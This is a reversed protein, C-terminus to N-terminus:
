FEPGTIGPTDHENGDRLMHRGEMRIGGNEIVRAFIRYITYGGGGKFFLDHVSGMFRKM